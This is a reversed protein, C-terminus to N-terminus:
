FQGMATFGAGGPSAWPVIEVRSRTPHIRRWIFYTTTALAAAGLAAGIVIARTSTHPSSPSSPTSAVRATTTRRQIAFGRAVLTNVDHIEERASASCSTFNVTCQAVHCQCIAMTQALNM